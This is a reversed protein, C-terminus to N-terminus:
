SQLQAVIPNVGHGIQGPFWICDGVRMYKNASRYSYMSMFLPHKMENTESRLRGFAVSIWICELGAGKVRFAPCTRCRHSSTCYNSCTGTQCDSRMRCLLGLRRLLSRIHQLLLAHYVTTTSSSCTLLQSHRCTVTAMVDLCLLM